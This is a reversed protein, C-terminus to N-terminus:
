DCPVGDLEYIVVSSGYQGDLLYVNDLLVSENPSGEDYASNFDMSYYFLAEGIFPITCAQNQSISVNYSMKLYKYTGSFTPPPITVIPLGDSGITADPMNVEWDLGSNVNDVNKYSLTKSTSGMVTGACNVFDFQLDVSAYSCALPYSVEDACTFPDGLKIAMYDNQPNFLLSSSATFLASNTCDPTPPPDCGMWVTSAVLLALGLFKFLLKNM